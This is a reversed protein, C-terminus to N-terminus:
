AEGGVQRLQVKIEAQGQKLEGIDHEAKQLRVGYGHVEQRVGDLKTIVESHRAAVADAEHQDARKNAAELNSSYIRWGAFMAGTLVAVVVMLVAWTATSTESALTLGMILKQGLNM